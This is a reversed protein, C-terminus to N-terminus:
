YKISVQCAAANREHAPRPAAVALAKRGCPLCHCVRHFSLEHNGLHTDADVGMDGPSPQQVHAQAGGWRSPFVDACRVTTRWDSVREHGARAHAQARVLHVAGQRFPARDAAPETDTTERCHEEEVLALVVLVLAAARLAVHLLPQEASRVLISFARIDRAQRPHELHTCRVGVRRWGTGM